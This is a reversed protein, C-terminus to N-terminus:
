SPDSDKQMSTDLLVASHVTSISREPSSKGNLPRQPLPLATNHTIHNRIGHSTIQHTRIHKTHDHVHTAMHLRRRESQKKFRIFPPATRLTARHERRMRAWPIGEPKCKGLDSHPAHGRRCQVPAVQSTPGGHTVSPALPRIGRTARFDSCRTGRCCPEYNEASGMFSRRNLAPDDHNLAQLHAVLEIEVINDFM